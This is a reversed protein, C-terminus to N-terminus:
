YSYIIDPTWNELRLVTTGHPTGRFSSIDFKLDVNILARCPDVTSFHIIQLPQKPPLSKMLFGNEKIEFKHHGCGGGYQVNAILTDGMIKVDKFTFTSSVFETSDVNVDVNSDVAVDVVTETKCGLTLLLSTGILIYFLDKM